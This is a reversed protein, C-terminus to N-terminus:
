DSNRTDQVNYGQTKTYDKTSLRIQDRIFKDIFGLMPDEKRELIKTFFNPGSSSFRKCLDIFCCGMSELYRLFKM